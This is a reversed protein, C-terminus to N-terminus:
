TLDARLVRNKDDGGIETEQAANLIEEPIGSAASAKDVLRSYEDRLEIVTQQVRDLEAEDEPARSKMFKRRADVLQPLRLKLDALVRDAEALLSYAARYSESENM